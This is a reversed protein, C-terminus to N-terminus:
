DAEVSSRMWEKMWAYMIEWCDGCLDTTRLYHVQVCDSIDEPTFRIIRVAEKDCRDCSVRTAM